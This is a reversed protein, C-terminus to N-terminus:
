TVFESSLCSKDDEEVPIPDLELVLLLARLMREVDPVHEVTIKEKEGQVGM